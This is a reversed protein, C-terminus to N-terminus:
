GESVPDTLRLQALVGDELIGRLLTGLEEPSLEGQNQLWTGLLSVVGPLYFALTYRARINDAPIHLTDMVLPLIEAPLRRALNTNYPNGLFTRALEEQSGFVDSFAQVFNGAIDEGLINATISEQIKGILEDELQAQLDYVDQFYQYFTVRNYGAKEAIEKVTIKEIPRTRYFACFVQIFMKRTAATIEPQKKM